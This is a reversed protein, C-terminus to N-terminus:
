KTQNDDTNRITKQKQMLQRIREKTEDSITTSHRSPKM